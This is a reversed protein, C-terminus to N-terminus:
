DKIYGLFVVRLNSYLRIVISKIRDLDLVPHLETENRM